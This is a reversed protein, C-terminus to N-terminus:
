EEGEQIMLSAIINIKMPNSRVHEWSGYFRKISPEADKIWLLFAEETIEAAKREVVERPIGMIMSNDDTTGETTRTEKQVPAAPPKQIQSPKAESTKASKMIKKLYGIRNMIKSQNRLYYMAGSEISYLDIGDYPISYRALHEVFEAMWNEYNVSNSDNNSIQDSRIQDSRIQNSQNSDLRIEIMSLKEAMDHLVSSVVKIDSSIVSLIELLSKEVNETM